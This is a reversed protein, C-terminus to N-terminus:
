RTPSGAVIAGLPDASRTGPVSEGAGLDHRLDDDFSAYLAVAKRLTDVAPADDAGLFCFMLATSFLM